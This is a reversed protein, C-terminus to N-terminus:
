KLREQIRRLAEEVKAPKFQTPSNYLQDRKETFAKELLSRMDLLAEKLGPRNEGLDSLGHRVAALGLYLQTAGDWNAPDHDKEAKAAALGQEDGALAALLHQYRNKLLMPNTEPKELNLDNLWDRLVKAAKGAEDAVQKEDPARVRMLQNLQRLSDKPGKGPMQRELTPLLPFYWTGWPLERANRPGFGREQRDLKGTLDHHCAACNYEAFEPWPKGDKGQAGDARHKLLKLAAEASVLQGIVWARAELDPYCKRDQSTKWHKGPYNALYAGYEFRLRPHGAAILDHNVDMDGDGVHCRVCVEARVRLDKTNTMGDKGPNDLYHTSLWKEAAGHCSECGVGDNLRFRESPSSLDPYVHCRLCLVAKEPRGEALQLHKLMRVSREEFLVRFARAHPDSVAWTTYESGKSGPPGNANHCATAACSAVGQLLPSAAHDAKAVSPASAVGALMMLLLFPRVRNM